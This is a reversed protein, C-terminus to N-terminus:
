GQKIIKNFYESVAMLKCQLEMYDEDALKNKIDIKDQRSGQFMRDNMAKLVKDYTDDVEVIIKGQKHLIHFVDV